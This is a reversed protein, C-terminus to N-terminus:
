ARKRKVIAATLSAISPKKARINFCCVVKPAYASGIASLSRIPVDYTVREIKCIIGPQSVTRTMLLSTMMRDPNPIIKKLSFFISILGLISLLSVVHM